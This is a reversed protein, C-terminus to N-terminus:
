WEARPKTLHIPDGVPQRCRACPAGEAAMRGEAAARPLAYFHPIRDPPVAAAPPAPLPTRETPRRPRVGDRRGRRDRQRLPSM